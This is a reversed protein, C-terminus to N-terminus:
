IATFTFRLSKYWLSVRVHKFGIGFKMTDSNYWCYHVHHNNCCVNIHSIMALLVPLCYLNTLITLKLSFNEDLGLNLGMDGARHAPTGGVAGGLYIM